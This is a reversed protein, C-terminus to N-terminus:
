CLTEMLSTNFNLENETFINIVIINEHLECNISHDLTM